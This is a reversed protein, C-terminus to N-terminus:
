TDIFRFLADGKDMLHTMAIYISWQDEPPMLEYKFPQGAIDPGSIIIHKLVQVSWVEYMEYLKDEDAPSFMPTGDSDKHTPAIRAMIAFHKTGAAGTPRRIVYDGHCTRITYQIKFPIPTFPENTDSVNGQVIEKPLVEKAGLQEEM